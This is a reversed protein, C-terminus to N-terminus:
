GISLVLKGLQQGANMRDYAEQAEALPRVSDIVPRIQHKEVFRLMDAFEADNGMTTGYISLQKFFIV